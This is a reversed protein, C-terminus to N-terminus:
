DTQAINRLVYGFFLCSPIVSAQLCVYSLIFFLLVRRYRSSKNHPCSSSGHRSHRRANHHPISSPPVNKTSALQETCVMCEWYNNLTPPVPGGWLQCDLNRPTRKAKYSFFTYSLHDDFHWVFARRPLLYDVPCICSVFLFIYEVKHCKGELCLFTVCTRLYNITMGSEDLYWM